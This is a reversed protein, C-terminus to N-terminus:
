KEVFMLVSFLSCSGVVNEIIVSPALAGNNLQVRLWKQFSSTKLKASSSHTGAVRFMCIHFVLINSILAPVLMLARSPPM